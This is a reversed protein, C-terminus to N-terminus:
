RVELGRAAIGRLIERTGGRISFTPSAMTVYNLVELLGAHPESMLSRVVDPTKQEVAAGLDKVLVAHVSPDQRRELMGAVSLSMSRLTALEAMCRGLTALDGRDPTEANALGRDHCAAVFSSLLPFASLYREPGSRELALESTVQAWGRDVTGLVMEDAVFVDDFFIEAFHPEGNIDDIPRVDIGPADLEVIFQTLGDRRDGEAKAGTRFLGIMAQCLQANTTWIKSGNLRWGGADRVARSGIAALDSGADPESMGICFSIDGSAIGALFRNKQVDNGLRLILPGSQRDGIWHAGVPAGAALMEEQVVYRHLASEGAGYPAPWNIGIWGKAGVARSFDRDFAVWSRARDLDSWQEGESALFARVDARLENASQPLELPPFRTIAVPNM